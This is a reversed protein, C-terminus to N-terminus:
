PPPKVEGVAAVRTALSDHDQRRPRMPQAAFKLTGDERVQSGLYGFASSDCRAPRLRRVVSAPPKALVPLGM